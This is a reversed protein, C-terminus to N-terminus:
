NSNTSDAIAIDDSGMYCYGVNTTVWEGGSLFCGSNIAKTITKNLTAVVDQTSNFVGSNKM